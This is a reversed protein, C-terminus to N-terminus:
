KFECSSLFDELSVQKTVIMNNSKGVNGAAVYESTGQVQNSTNWPAWDYTFGQGTWPYLTPTGSQANPKTNCYSSYYQNALFSSVSVGDYPAPPRSCDQPITTAPALCYGTYLNGGVPCPRFMNGDNLGSKHPNNRLNFLVLKRTVDPSDAPLGLFQSIRIRADELSYKKNKMDLCLSKMNSASGLFLGYNGNSYNPADPKTAPNPYYQPSGTYAVAYYDYTTNSKSPSYFKFADLPNKKELKGFNKQAAPMASQYYITQYAMYKTYKPNSFLSEDSSLGNHLRECYYGSSTDGKDLSACVVALKGCQPEPKDSAGISFDRIKFELSSNPLGAMQNYPNTLTYSGEPYGLINPIEPYGCNPQSARYNDYIKRVQNMVNDEESYAFSSILSTFVLLFLAQNKMPM